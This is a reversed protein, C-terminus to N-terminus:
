QKSHAFLLKGIRRAGTIGMQDQTKEKGSISTGRSEKGLRHSDNSSPQNESKKILHFYRIHNFIFINFSFFLTNIM